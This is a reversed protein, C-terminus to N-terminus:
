QMEIYVFMTFLATLRVFHLKMFMTPTLLFSRKSKGDERYSTSCVIKINQKILIQYEVMHDHKQFAKNSM